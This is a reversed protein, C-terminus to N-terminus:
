IYKFKKVSVFLLKVSKCQSSLQKQNLAICTVSFQYFILTNMVSYTAWLTFETHHGQETEDDPSSFIFRRSLWQISSKIQRDLAVLVVM